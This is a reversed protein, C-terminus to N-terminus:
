GGLEKKELGLYNVFVSQLVQDIQSMELGKFDSETLGSIDQVQELLDYYKEVDMEGGWWVLANLKHLKRRQKYTCDKVDYEKKDVKVIM